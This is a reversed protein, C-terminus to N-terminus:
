WRNKEWVSPSLSSPGVLNWENQGKGAEKEKGVGLALHRWEKM